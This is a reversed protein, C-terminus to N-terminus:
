HLEKDYIEELNIKGNTNKTDLYIIKNNKFIFIDDIIENYFDFQHGTLLITTKTSWKKIQQKLFRITDYDLGNSIEDMILYDPELIEVLALALKKKQGYSYNKVKRNLLDNDLYKLSLEIISKKTKKGESFLILNKLGSLNTYFPCDDWLVLCNNKKDNFLINGSYSELGMICKILTTKGSGNSGMFFSIKNKNIKFSSSNIITKKNYKKSFNSIEIM